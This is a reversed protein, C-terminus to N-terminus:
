AGVEWEIIQSSTGYVEWIYKSAERISSFKIEELQFGWATPESLTKWGLLKKEQVKFSLTLSICPVIRFKSM